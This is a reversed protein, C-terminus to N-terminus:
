KRFIDKVIIDYARCNTQNQKSTEEILVPFDPGNLLLVCGHFDIRVIGKEVVDALVRSNHFEGSCILAWSAICNTSDNTVSLYFYM